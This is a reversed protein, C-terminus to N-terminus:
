LTGFPGLILMLLLSPLYVLSARLLWRASREDPRVLFTVACALQSLGLVLAWAVYHLGALHTVAPLLSVPVLLLAACVAQLGAARGTRDVVPLMKMGAAAYDERYLWAIAMFHPFQWLLVV